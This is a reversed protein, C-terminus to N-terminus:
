NNTKSLASDETKLNLSHEICKATSRGWNPNIGSRLWSTERCYCCDRWTVTALDTLASISSFKWLFYIRSSISREHSGWKLNIGIIEFTKDTVSSPSCFLNLERWFNLLKRALQSATRPLIIPFKIGMYNRWGIFTM